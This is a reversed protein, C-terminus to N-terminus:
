QVKTMWVNSRLGLSSYYVGGSTVSILPYPGSGGTLATIELPRKLPLSVPGNAKGTRGDIRQLALLRMGGQGLVYYVSGGDASFRPRSNDTHPPSIEAWRDERELGDSSMRAVWIGTMGGPKRRGFVIWRGDWSQSPYLLQDAEHVFMKRVAGSSPDLECIGFKPPPCEGLVRKGDASWDSGLQFQDLGAVKRPEGTDLPLIFDGTEGGKNGPALRYFVQKGDPSVQPWISGHGANLLEHAAFVREEGSRLNRVVLEGSQMSSIRGYALTSGDRSVAFHGIGEIVEQPAPNVSWVSVAAEGRSYLITDAADIVAANLNVPSAALEVRGNRVVRMVGGVTPFRLDAPFSGANVGTILKGSPDCVRVANGGKRLAVHGGAPGGGCQGFFFLASGDVSWVPRASARCDKQWVEPVGGSATLLFM